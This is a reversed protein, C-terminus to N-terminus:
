EYIPHAAATATPIFIMLPLWCALAPSLLYGRNGLGQCAMVVLLFLLVILLCWGAAVFVNRNGRALVLPLGLFFLTVDL